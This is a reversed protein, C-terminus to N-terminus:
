WDESQEGAEAFLPLFQVCAPAAATADRTGNVFSTTWPQPATFRLPGIPPQAYPIKLFSNVATDACRSGQLTGNAITVTQAAAITGLLLCQFFSSPFISSKTPLGM